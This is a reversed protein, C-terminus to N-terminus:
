KQSINRKYANENKIAAMLYMLPTPLACGFAVWGFTLYGIDYVQLPFCLLTYILPIAFSIMVLLKCVKARKLNNRWMIGATGMVIYLSGSLVSTIGVLKYERCSWCWPPWCINSLFYFSGLLIGVGGIIILLIGTVMLFDKGPAIAAAPSYVYPMEKAKSSVPINTPMVPIDVPTATSLPLHLKTGCNFCFAGKAPANNNGCEHCFM